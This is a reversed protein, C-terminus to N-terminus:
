GFLYNRVDHRTDLTQVLSSQQTRMLHIEEYMFKLADNAEDPFPKRPAKEKAPKKPTKITSLDDVTFEPEKERRSSRAPTTMEESSSDEGGNGSRPARERLVRGDSFNANM